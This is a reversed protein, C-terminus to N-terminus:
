PKSLVCADSFITPQNEMANLTSSMSNVEKGSVELTENGQKVVLYVEVNDPEPVKLETTAVEVDNSSIGMDVMAERDDNSNAM